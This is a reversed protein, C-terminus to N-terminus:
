MFIIIYNYIYMYIYDLFAPHMRSPIKFGWRWEPSIRFIMTPKWGNTSGGDGDAPPNIAALSSGSQAFGGINVVAFVPLQSYCKEYIL